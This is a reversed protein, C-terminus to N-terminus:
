CGSAFNPLTGATLQEEMLAPVTLVDAVEADTVKLVLPHEPPAEPVDQVQDNPLKDVGLEHLWPVVLQVNLTLVGVETVALIVAVASVDFVADLEATCNVGVPDVVGGAGPMGDLQVM